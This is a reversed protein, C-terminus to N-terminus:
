TCGPHNDKILGDRVNGQLNMKLIHKCPVCKGVAPLCHGRGQWLDCKGGEAKGFSSPSDPVRGPLSQWPSENIVILTRKILIGRPHPGGLMRSHLPETHLAPAPHTHSTCVMAGSVMSPSPGPRSEARQLGEQARSQKGLASRQMELKDLDVTCFWMVWAQLGAPGTEWAETPLHRQAM